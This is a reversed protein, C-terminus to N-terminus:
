SHHARTLLFTPLKRRTTAEALPTIHASNSAALYVMPSPDCGTPVLRKSALCLRTPTALEMRYCQTRTLDRATPTTPTQQVM